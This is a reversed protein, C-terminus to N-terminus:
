FYMSCLIEVQPSSNSSPSSILYPSLISVQKEKDEDESLAPLLGKDKKVESQDVLVEITAAPYKQNDPIV